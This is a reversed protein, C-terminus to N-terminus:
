LRWNRKDLHFDGDQGDDNNLTDDNLSDFSHLPANSGAARFVFRGRKGVPQLNHALLWAGSSLKRTRPYYQDDIVAASSAVVLLTIAICCLILLTRSQM